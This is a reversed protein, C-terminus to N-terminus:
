VHSKITPSTFLAKECDVPSFVARAFSLKGTETERIIINIIMIIMIIMIITIIIIIIIIAAPHGGFM